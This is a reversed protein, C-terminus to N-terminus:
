MEMGAEDMVPGLNTTERAVDPPHGRRPSETPRTGQPPQQPRAVRARLRDAVGRMRMFLERQRPM